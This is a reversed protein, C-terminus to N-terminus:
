DSSTRPIFSHFIVVELGKYTDSKDIKGRLKIMKDSEGCDIMEFCVSVCVSVSVSVYINNHGPNESPSRYGTRLSFLLFYIIALIRYFFLRVIPLSNRWDFVRPSDCRFLRCASM